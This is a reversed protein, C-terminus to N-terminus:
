GPWDGDTLFFRQTECGQGDVRAILQPRGGRAFRQELQASLDEPALTNTGHRLPSLWHLRPLVAFRAEAPVLARWAALTYWRLLPLAPNYGAPPSLRDGAPQFLAGRLAIERLPHELGHSALLARGAPDLSLRSQHQLLRELKLDLRDVTNPGLWERAASPDPGASTCRWGLYYKVALELHVPRARQHCYYLCDFEGLTRGNNRVPLNHALLETESDATLFFQWLQEFYLGLRSAAGAELWAVLPEPERDLHQLWAARSATLSLGATTVGSGPALIEMQLLPPGFCAWALDRVQPNALELATLEPCTDPLQM